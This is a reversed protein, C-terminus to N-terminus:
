VGSGALTLPDTTVAKFLAATDGSRLMRSATSERRPAMISASQGEVIGESSRIPQLPSALSASQIDTNGESLRIPQLSEVALALSACSVRGLVGRLIFAGPVGPVDV